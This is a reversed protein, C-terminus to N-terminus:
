KRDLRAIIQKEVQPVVWLGVGIWFLLKADFRIM